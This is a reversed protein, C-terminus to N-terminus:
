KSGKKKPTPQLVRLYLKKMTPVRVRREKITKASTAELKKVLEFYYSYSLKVAKRATKPLDDVSQRAALFDKKIDELIQQKSTEDFSDYSVGPFYVRQREQYDSAIDRLFNVKQYASGLARAGAELASYEERDGEVFVKLCMLGIVEASGYIYKEYLKKTYRQPKLDMRMSAFFPAILTKTIGYKKATLAFAHVIPNTSYGIKIATYTEKELQNLQKLQDKGSYTDVIEDAIRVLGYIAFIHPQIRPTFLKTSSGFSTSYRLTLIRSLEYSTNTYLEM